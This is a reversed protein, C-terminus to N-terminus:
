ECSVRNIANIAEDYSFGQAVLYKSRKQKELFTLEESLDSDISYKKQYNKIALEFWDANFEAFVESILDSSIGKPHMAQIVKNKGRFKALQIRMISEAVRRDSQWNNKKADDLLFKIDSESLERKQLKNSLELCSYERRSLLYILYNRHKKLV